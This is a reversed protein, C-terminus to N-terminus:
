SGHVKLQPLFAVGFNGLQGAEGDQDQITGDEGDQDQITGDEGDQDQKTGSDLEMGSYEGDQDQVTGTEERDLTTGTYGAQVMHTIGGAMALTEMHTTESPTTEM